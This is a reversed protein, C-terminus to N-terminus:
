KRPVNPGQVGTLPRHVTAMSSCGSPQPTCRHCEGSRRTVDGSGRTGDGSGSRLATRQAFLVTAWQTARSGAPRLCNRLTCTIIITDVHPRQFSDGGLSAPETARGEFTFILHAKLLFPLPYPAWPKKPVLWFLTVRDCM